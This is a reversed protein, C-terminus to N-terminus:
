LLHVLVRICARSTDLGHRAVGGVLAFVGVVQAADEDAELLLEVEEVDVEGASLMEEKIATRVGVRGNHRRRGGVM